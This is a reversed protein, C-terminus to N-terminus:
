GTRRTNDIMGVFYSSMQGSGVAAVLQLRDDGIATFHDDICRVDSL